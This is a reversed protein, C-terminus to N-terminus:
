SKTRWKAIHKRNEEIIQIDKEHYVPGNLLYEIFSDQDKAETYGEDLKARLKAKQGPTLTKVLRLIQQFPIKVKMEM